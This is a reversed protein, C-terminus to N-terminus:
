GHQVGLYYELAAVAKAHNELAEAETACRARDLRVDPGYVDTEFIYPQRMPFGALGFWITSVRWLGVDTLAVQRYEDDEIHDAWQEFTIPEGQRNFWLQPKDPIEM